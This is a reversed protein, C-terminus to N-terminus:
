TSASTRCSGVAASSEVQQGSTSPRRGRVHQWAGVLAVTMVAAVRAYSFSGAMTSPLALIWLLATCAAMAAWAARPMFLRREAFTGAAVLVFGLVLAEALSVAIDMPWVNIWSEHAVEAVFSVWSAAFGAALFAGVVWALWVLRGPGGSPLAADPRKNM